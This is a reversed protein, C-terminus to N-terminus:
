ASSETRSMQRGMQLHNDSINFDIFQNELTEKGEDTLETDLPTIEEIEEDELTKNEDSKLVDMEIINNLNNLQKFLRLSRVLRSLPFIWSQRQQPDGRM